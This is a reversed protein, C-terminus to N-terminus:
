LPHHQPESGRRMAWRLPIKSALVRPSRDVSRFPM